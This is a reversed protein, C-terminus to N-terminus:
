VHQNFLTAIFKIQKENNTNAQKENLMTMFLGETFGIYTLDAQIELPMNNLFQQYYPVDSGMSITSVVHLTRIEVLNNPAINIDIQGSQISPADDVPFNPIKNVM